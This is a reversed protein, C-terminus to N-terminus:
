SSKAVWACATLLEVKGELITCMTETAGGSELALDTCFGAQVDGLQTACAGLAQIAAVCDAQEDESPPHDVNEIGRLCQDEYILKCNAVETPTFGCAAAQTCREKEIAKCADVGVPGSCGETLLAVGALCALAAFAGRAFAWAHPRLARPETTM